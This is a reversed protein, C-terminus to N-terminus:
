TESVEIIRGGALQLQRDCRHAVFEDHTALIVAAGNAAAVQLSETVIERSAPDLSATPEDALLIPAATTIARAIAVRQKEGGSLKFAATEALDAIGVLALAELARDTTDVDTRGRAAASLRANDLVTRRALLPTSQVLWEIDPHDFGLYRLRGSQPRVRGAIVGLLTSKGSGSPGLVATTQGAAFTESLADLVNRQGFTVTVADLEIQM